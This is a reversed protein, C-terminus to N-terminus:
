FQNNHEYIKTIHTLFDSTSLALKMYNCNSCSSKCNDKLYGISSDARDIGYGDGGCYECPNSTIKVYDDLTIEVILGRSKASAKLAHFRYNPTKYRAKMKVLIAERNRAYHENCVKRHEEKHESYYVKRRKSIREQHKKQYERQYKKEDEKNKYM